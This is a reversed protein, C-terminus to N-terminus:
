KPPPEPELFDDAPNWKKETYDSFDDNQNKGNM